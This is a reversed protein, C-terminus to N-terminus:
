LAPPARPSHHLSRPIRHCPPARRVAGVKIEPHTIESQLRVMEERARAGGAVALCAAARAALPRRALLPAAPGRRLARCHSLADPWRDASALCDLLLCNFLVQWCATPEARNPLQQVVAAGAPPAGRHRLRLTGDQRMRTQECGAAAVNGCLHPGGVQFEADDGPRGGNLAAAAAELPAAMLARGAGHALPPGAAAAALSRCSAECQDHRRALAAMRAAAAHRAAAARRVQIQSAVDQAEPRLLSLLAQAFSLAACPSSLFM